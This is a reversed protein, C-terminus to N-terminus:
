SINNLNSINVDCSKISLDMHEHIPQFHGNLYCAGGVIEDTAHKGSLQCGVDTVFESQFHM